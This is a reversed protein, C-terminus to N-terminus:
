RDLYIRLREIDTRMKLIDSINKDLYNPFSYVGFGKYWYNATLNDAIKLLYEGEIDFVYVLEKGVMNSTQFDRLFPTVNLELYNPTRLFASVNASVLDPIRIRTEKNLVVIQPIEISVPM